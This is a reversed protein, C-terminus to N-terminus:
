DHIRGNSGVTGLIYPPPIKVDVGASTTKLIAGGWGLEFARHLPDMEDTSPGAALIFPNPLKKGAVEISLNGTPFLREASSTLDTHDIM